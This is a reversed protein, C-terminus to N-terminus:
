RQPNTVKYRGLGVSDCIWYRGDTLLFAPVVEVAYSGFSVLVVHRDAQITTNPYTPLMVDRVEQLLASQRNGIRNQFRHYVEPPLLFYADIDCPPRTALYKGWSGILLRNADGSDLEYYHQNLCTFVGNLKTWGDVQQLLTLGINQHFQSFRQRVAVWPLAWTVSAPIQTALSVESQVPALLAGM